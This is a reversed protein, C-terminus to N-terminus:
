PYGHFLFWFREERIKNRLNKNWSGVTRTKTRIGVLINVTSKLDTGLKPYTTMDITIAGFNFYFIKLFFNLNM